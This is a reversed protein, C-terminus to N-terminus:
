IYKLATIFYQDFANFDSNKCGRIDFLINASFYLYRCCLLVPHNENVAPQWQQVICIFAILSQVDTPLLENAHWGLYVFEKVTKM